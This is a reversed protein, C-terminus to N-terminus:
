NEDGMFPTIELLLRIVGEGGDLSHNFGEMEFTIEECEGISDAKDTKLKIELSANCEESRGLFTIM